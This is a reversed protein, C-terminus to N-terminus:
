SRAAIPAKRLRGWAVLGTLTGLVITMPVDSWEGRFLHFVTALWMVVNLGIAAAPTLIPLIRVLAPLILGIAGAVESAGIFRVLAGPLDATYPLTKALEDLPISVKAYGAGAFLLALLLQVVWLATNAGQSRQARREGPIADVTIPM